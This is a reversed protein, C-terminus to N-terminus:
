SWHSSTLRKSKRNIFSFLYNKFNRHFYLIYIYFFLINYFFYINKKNNKEFKLFNKLNEFKIHNNENLIVNRLMVFLEEFQESSTLEGKLFYIRINELFYEM